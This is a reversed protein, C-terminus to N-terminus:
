KCEKADRHYSNYHIWKRKKAQHPRTQYGLSATFKDDEQRLRGLEPLASM